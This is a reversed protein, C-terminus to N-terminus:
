PRYWFHVGKIGSPPDVSLLSASFSSCKGHDLPNGNIDVLTVYWALEGAREPPIQVTLSSERTDGGAALSAYGDSAGYAAVSYLVGSPLTNRNPWSFTVTPGSVTEGPGPHVESESFCSLQAYWETPNVFTLPPMGEVSIDDCYVPSLNGHEDQFQASVYFGVWNIALRVPFSRSPAFPEWAASEMDAQTASCGPAPRVRMREVKGYPSAASFGVEVQITEGAIGGTAERGSEILV